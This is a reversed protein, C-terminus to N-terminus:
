DEFPRQSRIRSDIQSMRRSLSDLTDRIGEVLMAKAITRLMVKGDELKTTVFLAEVTVGEDM